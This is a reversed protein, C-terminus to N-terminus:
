LFDTVTYPVLGADEIERDSFNFEGEMELDENFFYDEIKPEEEEEEKVGLLDIIPVTGKGGKGKKESVPCLFLTIRSYAKGLGEKYKALTFAESSGPITRASRADPYVLVYGRKRAFTRDYDEWKKLSRELVEDYNMNKLVKVPFTKGRLPKAEGAEYEMLGISILVEENKETARIKKRKPEFHSRRESEKEKMYSALSGVSLSSKTSTPEIRTTETRASRPDRHGSSTSTSAANATSAVNDDAGARDTKREVPQATPM